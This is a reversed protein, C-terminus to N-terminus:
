IALERHLDPAAELAARAAQRGIERSRDIAKWDMLAIGEVDPTIVLDAHTRAAAATDSSGVTISRVITEGLHPITAESGTLVRRAARTLGALRPREERRAQAGRVNVAVDVAIVPGEGALAMIEVPLNNLVGGDVLLRGEATAVPPFVGPIALSSYVADALLGTRHVVAERWVLDCSVCFFRMPLAEILRDGFEEHMLKRTKAGRIISFVPPGYDNTPNSAVFNRQFADKIYDPDFGAAFAGAVLSGLSVGGIRDFHLGASQLEELVGLHAFARAGGGSLVVGLSRGALRRATAALADGLRGPESIVQTDRPALAELVGPDLRPGMVLLECGGLSKAQDLWPRSPHGSTVALILDAERVCLATWPDSPDSGGALIVRDATDVAQDIAAMDGGALRAVSGHRELADALQATLETAPAAPDLGVVAITRPPSAQVVPTRSAALQAGITRVLGLAFDPAGQILAEFAERTLELLETDRRARASASRPARRLLALEGLVEGRRLGRILTEPPQEDVVDVRGSRIIFLSDAAEGERLIWEGAPVSLERVQGSLDDLLADPLDSLVPVNRLFTVTSVPDATM